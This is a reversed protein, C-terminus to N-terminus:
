LDDSADPMLDLFAKLVTLQQDSLVREQYSGDRGAIRVTNKDDDSIKVPTFQPGGHFFFNPDVNLAWCLHQITDPDPSSIGKEWNSVSTNSVGIKEALQRQTLGAAKRAQKLREGLNIPM